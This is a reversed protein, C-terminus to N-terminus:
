PTLSKKNEASQNHIFMTKAYELAGIVEQVNVKHSDGVDKISYIIGDKCVEIVITFLKQTYDVKFLNNEKIM